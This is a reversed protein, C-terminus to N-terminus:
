KDIEKLAETARKEFQMVNIMAIAEEKFKKSKKIHKTNIKKVEKERIAHIEGQLLSKVHIGIYLGRNDTIIRNHFSLMGYKKTCIGVGPIGLISDITKSGTIHTNPLGMSHHAGLLNHLETDALLKSVEEDLLPSNM